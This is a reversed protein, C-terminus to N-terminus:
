SFITIKSLLPIKNHKSALIATELGLHFPIHIHYIDYDTSTLLRKTFERSIVARYLNFDLKCRTINVGYYTKEFADINDTNTTIVDIQHGQNVLAESLSEVYYQIGGISPPYYATIQLVRM